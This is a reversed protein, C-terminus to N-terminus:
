ADEDEEDMEEYLAEMRQGLRDALDALWNAADQRSMAPGPETFKDIRLLVSQKEQEMEEESM